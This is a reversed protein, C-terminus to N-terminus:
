KQFDSCVEDIRRYELNPCDYYMFCSECPQEKAKKPDKKFTGKAIKPGKLDKKSTGKAIKSKKM